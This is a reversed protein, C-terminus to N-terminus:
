CMCSEVTSFLFLVTCHRQRVKWEKNCVDCIEGIRLKKKQSVVPASSVSNVISASVASSQTAPTAPTATRLSAPLM